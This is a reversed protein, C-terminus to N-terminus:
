LKSPLIWKVLDNCMVFVWTSIFFSDNKGERKLGNDSYQKGFDWCIKEVHPKPFGSYKQILDVLLIRGWPKM